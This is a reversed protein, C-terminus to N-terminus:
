VDGGNLLPSLDIRCEESHANLEKIKPWIDECRAFFDPLPQNANRAVAVTLQMWALVIDPTSGEIHIDWDFFNGSVELRANTPKMEPMM